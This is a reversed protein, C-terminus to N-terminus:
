IYWTTRSPRFFILLIVCLSFVMNISPLLYNYGCTCCSQPLGRKTRSCVSCWMRMCVYWIMYIYAYWIMCKNLVSSWICLKFTSKYLHTIYPHPLATYKNMKRIIIMISINHMTGEFYFLYCKIWLSFTYHMFIPKPTLVFFQSEFMYHLVKLIDM